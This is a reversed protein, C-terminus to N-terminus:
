VATQAIIGGLREQHVRQIMNNQLLGIGRGGDAM